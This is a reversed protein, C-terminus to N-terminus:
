PVATQCPPFTLRAPPADSTLSPVKSNREPLKMKEEVLSPTKVLRGPLNIVRALLVAWDLRELPARNWLWPVTRTSAPLRWMLRAPPVLLPENSTWAPVVNLRCLWARVGAESTLPAPVTCRDLVVTWPVNVEYM